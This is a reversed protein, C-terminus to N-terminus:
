PSVKYLVKTEYVHELSECPLPAYGGVAIEQQKVYNNVIDFAEQKSSAEVLTTGMEYHDTHFHEHRVTFLTFLTKFTTTM